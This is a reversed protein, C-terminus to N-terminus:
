SPARPTQRRLSILEAVVAVAIEGADLAGIDLGVPTKIRALFEEAVGAAALMERMRLAKARSGIMGVHRPAAGLAALERLVALDEQHSQTMVLVFAGAPDLQALAERWPAVLRRAALPFREETLLEPRDDVVVCRFGAPVAVACVARAVHGAGFVIVNPMTIPEIFLEIRGGCLSGAEASEVDNLDIELRQPRESRLADLCRGIVHAELGGGGVTGLSTGDARVLMKMAAKGPTSGKTGIVTALAASGGERLIRAIEEHICARM